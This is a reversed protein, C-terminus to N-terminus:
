ARLPHPIGQFHMGLYSVESDSDHGLGSWVPSWIMLCPHMVGEKIGDRNWTVLKKVLGGSKVFTQSILARTKRSVTLIGGSAKRVEEVWTESRYDFAAEVGRALLRTHHKPSATAFIRYPKGSPSHITRLLEVAFLGITTSASYILITPPGVTMSQYLDLERGRFCSAWVTVTESNVLFGGMRVRRLIAQHFSVLPLGDFLYNYSPYM